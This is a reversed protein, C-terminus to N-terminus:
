KMNLLQYTKQTTGVKLTLWYTGIPYNTLDINKLVKKAQELRETLVEQGMLNSVTWVVNEPRVLEIQLQYNGDSPNPFILLSQLGSQEEEIDTAFLSLYGNKFESDNGAPNTTTLSVDFNGQSQYTVIPNQLNSTAPNGGEFTWSWSTPINTSKDFFNVTIPVTAETVNAVFDAIPSQYSRSGKAYWVPFKAETVLVFANGSPTIKDAAMPVVAIITDGNNITSFALANDNPSYSPYNLISNVFIDKTKGTETNAAVLTNDGTFSNIYDFSVIHPSNKAYTPNGVQVGDPLSSFLKFINGNDFGNKSNDWVKLIGIDWYNTESGFNSSLLNLADYLIYQGTPDWEIVDAYQPESEDVGEATSPNSLLYQRSEGTVLDQVYISRDIFISVLAVKRGDPSIAVNDWEATESIQQPGTSGNLSLEYVHKDDSVFYGTTGNEEVSPKRIAPFADTTLAKFSQLENSTNLLMDYIANPDGNSADMVVMHNEGQVAPLDIEYDTVDGGEGVEENENFIGVQDFASRAASVEAANDGYIDKAAKVVALRADIFQSSQTLYNALAHYYVREAKPRGVQTAFLYFARNPIGSNIHVGGNDASTNRYESMHKPQWGNQNPSAGNNPNSMSRLAGSPFVSPNVIDEGLTWDDDDILVGFVDAFSENLAGSQNQYVLNATNQIVGHTMEHGAVDLSKALPANFATQGSGYGMFYGNWFANDMGGGDNEAINIISIITGNKGNLSNRQHKELFYQYCVSANYHASVATRQTNWNNNTSTVHELQSNISGLPNNRLDLTLIGGVPDDPLQSQNAVYMPRQTDLMFYTNGIQYTNLSRNVGKLDQATANTPGDKCIHQFKHLVEGTEADVFYEWRDSLSAFYLVQWALRQKKQHPYIVLNIVQDEYHILEKARESLVEIQTFTQLNAEVTELAIAPSIKAEVSQLSPTTEYRGNFAEVGTENLHVVVDSGWVPIGQYQQSLRVHTKGLVDNEVSKVKFEASPNNIQLLDKYTNMFNYAAETKTAASSKYLDVPHLNKGSIFYPTNNRNSFNIKMSKDVEKLVEVQQEVKEPLFHLTKFKLEKKVLEQPKKETHSNLFSPKLLLQSNTTKAIKKLGKKATIDMSTSQAVAEGKMLFFVAILFLVKNILYNFYSKKM